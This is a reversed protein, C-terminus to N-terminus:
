IDKDLYGILYRSNIKTKILKSIVNDNFYVDWIKEDWPKKAAYLKEKTIEAKGFKVM